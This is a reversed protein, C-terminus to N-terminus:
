FDILADVRQADTRVRGAKEKEEAGAYATHTARASGKRARAPHSALVAVVPASVNQGCPRAQSPMPHRSTQVDPMSPRHVWIEDHWAARGLSCHYGYQHQQLERVLGPKPREISLVRIRHTAWPFSSMVLSEAGEVDLSLYDIETPASLRQLITAFRMTQISGLKASAKGGVRQQNDTNGEILGGSPGNFHFKAMGETESVACVVLRCSRKKALPAHYYPNPEICLGSWGYDRELARTNSSHIPNNAALDIFFGGRKGGFLERVYKDQGFDSHWTNPRDRESEKLQWDKLRVLPHSTDAIVRPDAACFEAPEAALATAAMLMLVDPVAMDAAPGLPAGLSAVRTKHSTSVPIQGIQASEGLTEEVVGAM